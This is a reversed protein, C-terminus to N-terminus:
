EEGYIRDTPAAPLGDEPSRTAQEAEIALARCAAACYTLTLTRGAVGKAERGTEPDALHVLPLGDAGIDSAHVLIWDSLSRAAEWKRTWWMAGNHKGTAIEIAMELAISAEETECRVALALLVAPDAM